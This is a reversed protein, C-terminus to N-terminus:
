ARCGGGIAVDRFQSSSSPPTLVYCAGVTAIAGAGACANICAGVTASPSACANIHQVVGIACACAGITNAARDREAELGSVV